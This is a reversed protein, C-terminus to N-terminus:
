VTSDVTFKQFGGLRGQAQAAQALASRAIALANSANSTLSNVGGSKLQNLYGTVNDGLNQSALSDLGITARTASNTGLQFTAGGGTVTVVGASGAANGTSTLTFQGSIGNTNFSFTLGDATVSQG